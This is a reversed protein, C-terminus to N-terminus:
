VFNYSLDKPMESRDSFLTPFIKRYTLIIPDKEDFVYFRMTGDYADITVKVSNRVYNGYGAIM